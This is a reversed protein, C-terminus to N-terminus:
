KEGKTVIYYKQPNDLRDFFIVTHDGYSFPSNKVEGSLYKKGGHSVLLRDVGATKTHLVREVLAPASVGTQEIHKIEKHQNLIAAFCVPSVLSSLILTVTEFANARIIFIAAIALASWALCLTVALPSTILSRDVNVPYSANDFDKYVTGCVVCRDGDTKAVRCVPCIGLNPDGGKGLRIYKGGQM